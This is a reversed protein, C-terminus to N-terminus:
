EYRLTEAPDVKSAMHAPYLASLISLAMTTIGIATIDRIDVVSPLHDLMFVQDSVLQIGMTNELTAIIETINNAIMIGLVCGALLGIGALLLSQYVFILLIRKKNVGITQLLAIE